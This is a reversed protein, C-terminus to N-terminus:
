RHGTAVADFEKGARGALDILKRAVESWSDDVCDVCQLHLWTRGAGLQQRAGTSLANPPDLDALVSHQVLYLVVAENNQDDPDRVAPFDVAWGGNPPQQTPQPIPWLGGEVVIM